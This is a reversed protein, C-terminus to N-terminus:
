NGGGTVAPAGFAEELLPILRELAVGRSGKLLLIEDGRLHPRLNAFAKLPDEEVLLRGEAEEELAPAVRAFV